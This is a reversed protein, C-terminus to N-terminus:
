MVNKVWKMPISNHRQLRVNEELKMERLAAKRQKWLSINKGLCFNFVTVLDLIKVSDWNLISFLQIEITKCVPIKKLQVELTEQKIKYREEM